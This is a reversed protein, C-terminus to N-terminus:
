ACDARVWQRARGKRGHRPGWDDGGHAVQDEGAFVARAPELIQDPLLDHGPDQAARDLFIPDAMGVLLNGDQEELVLARYRRAYTEPLRAVLEEDFNFDRLDVFPVALHECIDRIWRQPRDPDFRQADTFDVDSPYYALEGPGCM